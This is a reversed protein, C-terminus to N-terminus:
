NQTNQQHKQLLRKFQEAYAALGKLVVPYKALFPCGFLNYKPNLLLETCTIMVGWPHFQAHQIRECLVRTILEKTVETTDSSFVAILTKSMYITIYNPYRLQNVIANIMLFRRDVPLASLVQKIVYYVKNKLEPRAASQYGLFLVLANFVAAASVGTSTNNGSGSQQQQQQQQSAVSTPTPTSTFLLSSSSSSSSSSSTVALSSPSSLPLQSQQHQPLPLSLLHTRVWAYSSADKPNDICALVDATPVCADLLARYDDLLEPLIAAEPLQEVVARAFPSPTRTPAACLIISRINGYADPVANCLSFHYAALFESCLGNITLFLLVTGHVITRLSAHMQQQQQQQQQGSSSSSSLSPAATSTSSSSSSSSSYSLLTNVNAETACARALFRLLEVLQRQLMPWHRRSNSRLLTRRLLAHNSIVELWGYAFWPAVRPHAYKLLLIYFVDLPEYQGPLLGDNSPFDGFHAAWFNLLYLFPRPDRAGDAEFRVVFFNLAAAFYQRQLEADRSASQCLHLVLLGYASLAFCRQPYAPPSLRHQELALLLAEQLFRTKDEAHPMEAIQDFLARMGAVDQARLAECWQHFLGAWAVRAKAQEQEDQTKRASAEVLLRARRADALAGLAAEFTAAETVRARSAEAGEDGPSATTAIATTTSNSGHSPSSPATTTPLVSSSSSTTSSTNTTTTTTSSLCYRRKGELIIREFDLPNYLARQSIVFIQLLKAATSVALDRPGDRMCTSLFRDVERTDILGHSLLTLVLGPFFKKDSGLGRYCSTIAAVAGARAASDLVYIVAEQMLRKVSRDILYRFLPRVLRAGEEDDESEEDGDAGNAINVGEDAATTVSSSSASAVSGRATSSNTDFGVGSGPVATASASAAEGAGTLVDQRLPQQAILRTLEDASTVALAANTGAATTQQSSPWSRSVSPNISNSSNISSNSGRNYYRYINNNHRGNSSSSSSGGSGCNCGGNRIASLTEFTSAACRAFDRVALIVPDGPALQAVNRDLPCQACALELRKTYLLFQAGANSVYAAISGLSATASMAATATAAAAAATSASSSSSGAASAVDLPALVVSAQAVAAKLVDSGPAVQAASLGSLPQLPVLVRAQEFGKYVALTAEAQHQHHQQQQQAPRLETPVRELVGPAPSFCETDVFAPAQPTDSLFIARRRTLSEKLREPVMAAAAEEARRAVAICAADFNEYVLLKAADAIAVEAAGNRGDSGVLTRLAATLADELLRRLTPRCVALILSSALSKAMLTCAEVLRAGSPDCAFDKLAMHRATEVATKVAGPAEGRCAAEAAHAVAGIAARLLAQETVHAFVSGGGGGSNSSSSNTIRALLLRHTASVEVRPGLINRFFTTTAAAAAATTATTTPHLAPRAFAAPSVCFAEFVREIYHARRSRPDPEASRIDALLELLGATWRGPPQQLVGCHVLINSVFPLTADLAATSHRSQELIRRLDLDTRQIPRGRGVTVRGVWEGLVCLRERKDADGGSSSSSSSSFPNTITAATAAVFYAILSAAERYTLQMVRKWLPASATADLLEAYAQHNNTERTVRAIVAAAICELEAEGSSNNNNNNSSNSTTTTSTSTTVNSLCARLEAGMAQANQTTVANLISTAKAALKGSAAAAVAAANARAGKPRSSRILAYLAPAAAELGPLALLSATYNSWQHLQRSAFHRLAVAGYTFLNSRPDCLKLADLVVQLEKKLAEKELGDQAILKGLLEAGIYLKQLPYKEIYPAEEAILETMRKYVSWTDDNSGSDGNNNNNSNSSSNDDGGAADTNAAAVAAIAAKKKNKNKKKNRKRKEDEAKKAAVMMAVVSDVSTREDYMDRFHRKAKQEVTEKANDCGGSEDEKEKGGGSGLRRSQQQQLQNNNNSNRVKQNHQQQQQQHQHQQQMHIQRQQQRNFEAYIYGVDKSVDKQCFIYPHLHRVFTAVAEDAILFPSVPMRPQEGSRQLLKDRLYVVCTHIFALGNRGRLKEQLWRDLAVLGESAALTALDVALTHTEAELAAELLGEVRRAVWLVHGLAGRDRLYVACLGRVVIGQRREWIRKVAELRESDEEEEEVVEKKNVKENNNNNNNNNNCSRGRQPGFFHTYLITLINNKLQCSGEIDHMMYLLEEPHHRVPAEFMLCVAASCERHMSLRLLAQVFPKYLWTDADEDEDEDTGEGKAESFRVLRPQSLLVARLFSLQGPKNGWDVLLAEAPFAQSGTYQRHVGVIFAMRQQDTVYFGPRDLYAVVRKWDLDPNISKFAEAVVQPTWQSIWDTQSEQSSFFLAYKFFFYLFSLFFSSASVNM